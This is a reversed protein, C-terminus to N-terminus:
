GAGLRVNGLLASCGSAFRGLVRRLWELRVLRWLSGIAGLGFSLENDVKADEEKRPEFCAVFSRRIM